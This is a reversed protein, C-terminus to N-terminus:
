TTYMRSCKFKAHFIELGYRNSQASKSTRAGLSIFMCLINKFAPSWIQPQICAIHVSYEQTNLVMDLGTYMHPCEFEAHFIEIGYTLSQVVLGLQLMCAPTCACYMRACKLGYRLSPLANLCPM